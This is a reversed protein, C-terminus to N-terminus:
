KAKQQLLERMLRNQEAIEKVLDQQAEAKAEAPFLFPSLKQTKHENAADAVVLINAAAVLALLLVACGIAICVLIEVLTFAKM